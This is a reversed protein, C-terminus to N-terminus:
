IKGKSTKVDGQKRDLMIQVSKNEGRLTIQTNGAVGELDLFEWVAADIEINIASGQSTRLVSGRSGAEYLKIGDSEPSSRSWYTTNDAGYQSLEFLPAASPDIAPFKIAPSEIPTPTEAPTVAFQYDGATSASDRQQHRKTRKATFKQTGPRLEFASPSEAQLEPLDPPAYPIDPSAAAEALKRAGSMGDLISAPGPSPSERDNEPWVPPLEEDSRALRPMGPYWKKLQRATRAAERDAWCRYGERRAIFDRAENFSKERYGRVKPANKRDLPFKSLDTASAWAYSFGDDSFM